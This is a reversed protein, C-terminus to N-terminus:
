RRGLEDRDRQNDGRWEPWFPTHRAGGIAARYWWRGLFLHKELRSFGPNQAPTEPAIIQVLVAPFASLTLSWPSEGGLLHTSRERPRAGQHPDAHYRRYMFQM